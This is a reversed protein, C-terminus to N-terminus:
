VQFIDLWYGSHDSEQEPGSRIMEAFTKKKKKLGESILLTETESYVASYPGRLLENGQM